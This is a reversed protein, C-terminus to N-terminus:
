RPFALIAGFRVGWNPGGSPSDVFYRVGALFQVPQNGIRVLQSVGADVPITWRNRNWDYTSESNLFLGTRTPFTYSLFPQLFTVNVRDRQDTVGGLSWIHNGLLGFLWPGSQTLVVGTPGAGWQRAGLLGNTATPALIAAGAGWTVGHVPRSPSFFFSQVTDGLGTEHSPFIRELHTFAVVTRTILNWDENLTIPVVPRFSLRYALADGRGGGFDLTNIFPVSILNALPNTLQQALAADGTYYPVQGGSGASPSPASRASPDNGASLRVEPQAGAPVPMALSWVLGGLAAVALRVSRM